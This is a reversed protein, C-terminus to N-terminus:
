PELFPLGLKHCHALHRLLVGALVWRCLFRASSVIRADRSIRQHRTFFAGLTLVTIPLTIITILPRIFLNLAGLVVAAIFASIPTVTVDPVIYAAIGISLAAVFWHFFLKM